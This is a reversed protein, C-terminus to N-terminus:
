WQCSNISYCSVCSRPPMLSPPHYRSSPIPFTLLQHARRLPPYLALLHEGNEGERRVIRISLARKYSDGPQFLSLSSPLFLSFSFSLYVAAVYTVCVCV